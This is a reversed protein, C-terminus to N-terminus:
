IIGKERLLSRFIMVVAFIGFLIGVQVGYDILSLDKVIMGILLENAITLPMLEGIVRMLPDMFDLPLIMGSLFLMPIIILLSSLIVTSQNKTFFSIALGISIFTLSILATAILLQPFVFALELGFGFIAVLFIVMAVVMAIILQGLVKGFMFSARSTPCLELRLSINENREIIAAIATLLLCTLALVIATANAALIGFPDVEFVGREKFIVPRALVAPDINSFNILEGSFKSLLSDSENLKTEIETKSKRAEAILTEVETISERFVSLKENVIDIDGSSDSLAKEVEAAAADIEAFYSETEAITSNLTSEEDQMEDILVLVETITNNWDVMQTKRDNLDVIVEDLQQNPPISQQVQTLSNISDDLSKVAFNIESPITALTSEYGDLETKIDDYENKFTYFSTKFNEVDKKFDNLNNDFSGINDKQDNVISEIEDLNLDSLKQELDDLDKESDALMNKFENIQNLEEDLNSGLDQLVGWVVQLKTQASQVTVRQVIAKAIELFFKSSLLNSNDYSMNIVLQSNESAGTVTLGVLIEKRKIADKMLNVDNFEILNIEDMQSVQNILNADFSLENVLGVDVAGMKSIDMGSFASGLLGIALFPYLFILLLAIKQSKVLSIEKWIIDVLKM